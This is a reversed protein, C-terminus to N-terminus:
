QQPPEAVGSGPVTYHAQTLPPLSSEVNMDMLLDVRRELQFFKTVTLAPLVKNFKKYYKKKLEAQRSECDLMQEAMAKAEADTLNPYKQTYQKIVAARRDDLRSREYEYQQYIPWFAAGDKDNFNMGTTILTTRDARMNARVVAITSDITPEQDQARVLPCSALMAFTLTLLASNKMM